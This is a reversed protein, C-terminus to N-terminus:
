DLRVREGHRPVVAVWGLEEDLRDRITASADPEGHVVYTTSPPRAPRAWELLEDGDAHVSFGEIMEVEARVPVHRGLMKITRAGDALLRGRTGDAQFGVLAISNRPNPLRHSLHHVVRGGTAMGAASIIISPYELAHLAISAELARAEHLTGPDFPDPDADIPLLEPDGDRIARRYVNLVDLAMPSDVYVPLFPIRQEQVLQRIARLIIETRDVAFAPIVVVGGRGATRSILRALQELAAPEPPHRRDGYTSELLAVDVDPFPDPSRLLPHEPRGVDGSVFLTRGGPLEVLLSAAGLIHGAHRMTVQLGDAVPTPRGFEVPRFLRIAADADAVTYLPLAPHHRSFGKRNAYDADEEQLRAADRLVIAALAATNATVYVPGRFGARVLAPLYGSHDLHAHTLVVADLTAPEVPFPERNLLRLQKFGQFLGADLLVRTERHEVLFRSGTVTGAAGLFTLIPSTPRLGM